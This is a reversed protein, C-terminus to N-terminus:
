FFESLFVKQFFSKREPERKLFRLYLDFYILFVNLYSCCM